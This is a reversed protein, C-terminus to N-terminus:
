RRRERWYGILRLDNHSVAEILGDDDLRADFWRRCPEGFITRGVTFGKVIPIADCDRFGQRLPEDAADLGLVVMGTLRRPDTNVHSVDVGARALQGRV